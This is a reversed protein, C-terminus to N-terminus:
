DEQAAPNNERSVDMDANNKELKDEQRALGGVM